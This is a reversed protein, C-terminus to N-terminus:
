IKKYILLGERSIPKLTMACRTAADIHYCTIIFIFGFYIFWILYNLIWDPTKKRRRFLLWVCLMVANNDRRYLIILFYIIFNHLTRPMISPSDFANQQWKNNHEEEKTLNTVRRMDRAEPSLGLSFQVFISARSFLTYYIKILFLDRPYFNCL